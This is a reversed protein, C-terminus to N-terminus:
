VVVGVIYGRETTDPRLGRLNMMRPLSPGFVDADLVGVRRGRLAMAMAVNVSTTSKGVGGKGSAVAIVSGVGAIRRREVQPPSPTPAQKVRHPLGGTPSQQPAEAVTSRPSSFAGRLRDISAFYESFRGGHTPVTTHFSHRFTQGHQSSNVQLRCPRRWTTGTGRCLLM